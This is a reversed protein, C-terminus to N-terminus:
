HPDHDEISEPDIPAAPSRRLAYGYRRFLVFLVPAYGALYLAAGALLHPIADDGVLASAAAHSLWVLALAVGLPWTLRVMFGAIQLPGMFYRLAMGILGYGFLALSLTTGVAAGTLGRGSALMWWVLAANAAIVLLYLHVTQAQRRITIFFSSLGRPVSSFFTGILLIRLPLLSPEFRTLGTRILLESAFYVVGLVAPAVRSIILLPTEVMPRLDAIREREAYREVLRPSIVNGLTYSFQFLFDNIAVALAYHGFSTLGLFAIILWRDLSLFINYLLGNLHSPFGVTVLEKMVPWSWAFGVQFRTRSLQALTSVGYALTTGLILGLLPYGIRGLGWTLGVALVAELVGAWINLRSMWAFDKLGYLLSEMFSNIHAIYLMPLFALLAYRMTIDDVLWAAAVTGAAAILISINNATFAVDRSAALGAQDQRGAHFPIQRRLSARAGLDGFQAYTQIMSLTKWGGYLTPGLLGPIILSRVFNIGLSVTRAFSMYAFDRAIERTPSSVPLTSSM